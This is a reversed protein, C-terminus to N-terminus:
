NANNKERITLVDNEVLVEFREKWGNLRRDHVSLGYDPYKPLPDRWSIGLTDYWYNIQYDFSSQLGNFVNGSVTSVTVVFEKFADREIKDLIGINDLRMKQVSSEYHTAESCDVPLDPNDLLASDLDWTYINVKRDKACYKAGVLKGNEYILRLFRGDYYGPLNQVFTVPNGGVVVDSQGEPDQEQLQKILEFTKM